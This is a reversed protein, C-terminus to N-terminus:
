GDKAKELLTEISIKESDIYSHKKNLIKSLETCGIIINDAGRKKLNEIVINVLKVHHSTNKGAMFAEICDNLLSQELETTQIKVNPISGFLNLRRSTESCIVGITSNNYYKDIHSQTISIFDLIPINLQSQLRKHFFHVTNCDILVIDAGIHQIKKLSFLLKDYLLNSDIENFGLHNFEDLPVSYLIITPFHHDQCSQYNKQCFNIITKYTEASAAPGLGGLIGITKKWVAM